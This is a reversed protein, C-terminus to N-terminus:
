AAEKKSCQSKLWDMVRELEQVGYGGKEQIKLEERAGRVVLALLKGTENAIAEECKADAFLGALLALPTIIDEEIAQAMERRADDPTEHYNDGAENATVSEDAM